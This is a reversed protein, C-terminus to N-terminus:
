GGSALAALLISWVLNTSSASKESQKTIIKQPHEHIPASDVAQPKESPGVYKNLEFFGSQTSGNARTLTGQGHRKDNPWEGLYKQGNSWAATGNGKKTGLFWGGQYKYGDTHEISGQGHPNGNVVEGDYVANDYYLTEAYLFASSSICIAFVSFKLFNRM